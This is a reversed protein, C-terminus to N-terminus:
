DEFSIKRNPPPEALRSVFECAYQIDTKQTSKDGITILHIIELPKNVYVYLRTEKLGVGGRKQDIAIVGRPEFHMFGYRTQEVKAGSSLAKLYARLNNHVAAWERQHKKPWRGARKEYETEPQVRWM